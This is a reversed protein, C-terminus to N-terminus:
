EAMQCLLYLPGNYPANPPTVTVSFSFQEVSGGALAQGAIPYNGQVTFGPELITVNTVTTPCANTCQNYILSVDVNFAFGTQGTYTDFGGIDSSNDNLNSIGAQSVDANLVTLIIEGQSSASSGTTTSPTTTTSSTTTVVATTSSSSITTESTSLVLTSSSTTPTLTSSTSRNGSTVLAGGVAVVVVVVIVVLVAAVVKGM